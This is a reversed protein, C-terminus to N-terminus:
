QSNKRLWENYRSDLPKIKDSSRALDAIFPEVIEAKIENWQPALVPPVTLQNPMPINSLLSRYYMPFLHETVNEIASFGGSIGFTATDIGMAFTRDLMAKQNESNMFWEIFRAAAKKNRSKKYIGLMVMSDDIQIKDNNSIWRFDLTELLEKNLSMLMNSTTYAFLCRGSAIYKYYPTYLYKFQFDQESHYDQNVKNTWNQVYEIASSMKDQSYTIKSENVNFWVGQTRLILYIFDEYWQPGFGMSSFQKEKTTKNFLLSDSQIEEFSITHTQPVFSSNSEHFVVLPLNFSVPLLYQKGRSMGANLLNPYFIDRSLNHRKFLFDLQSFNKKEIGSKLCNGCILDPVPEGKASPITTEPNTKYIAVVKVDSHTKNFLEAYSVFEVRNTYIVVENTGSPKCSIFFAVALVIGAFAVAPILSYKYNGSNTKKALINKLTM